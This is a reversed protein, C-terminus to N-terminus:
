ARNCRRCFRLSPSLEFGSRCRLLVPRLSSRRCGANTRVHHPLHKTPTMLFLGIPRGCAKFFRGIASQSCFEATGYRSSNETKELFQCQTWQWVVPSHTTEIITSHRYPLAMAHSLKSPVKVTEGAELPRPLADSDSNLRSSVGPVYLVVEYRKTSSATARIPQADRREEYM